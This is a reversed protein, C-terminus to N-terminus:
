AAGNHLPLPDSCIFHEADSDVPSDDYVICADMGDSFFAGRVGDQTSISDDPIDPFAELPPILPNYLDCPISDNSYDSSLINSFAPDDGVEDLCM